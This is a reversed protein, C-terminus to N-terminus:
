AWRRIAGATLNNGGEGGGNGGAVGAVSGSPALKGLEAGGWSRM